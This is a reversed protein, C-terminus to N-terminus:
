NYKDLWGGNKKKQPYETVTKGKFKYEQEPYMMQKDGTDSIGLVPYPVGKMTIQNSNIKTIEGPHAWQGRDDEIVGGEEKRPVEKYGRLWNPKDSYAKIDSAPIESLTAGTEPNIVRHAYHRGKIQNGTVPNIQGRKYTPLSTEFIAGGEEPLYRLDAYGKQFSPFSTPRNMTKELLTAGEPSGQQVSRLVGTNQFDQLADLGTVRYSKNPNNLREAWPNIKYTKSLLGSEMSKGVKNAAGEVLGPVGGLMNNIFEKNSVENTWFKKSLPNVSGSGMMRGMFLPSAIAGVYPLNSNSERAEYPATGISGAAETIWNVPNIWDDYWTEDNENLRGKGEVSKGSVYAKERWDMQDLSKTEGTPLTFTKSKGENFAKAAKREAIRQQKEQEERRYAKGMDSTSSKIDKSKQGTTATTKKGKPTDRVISTSESAARPMDFRPLIFKGDQAIPILSGDRSISKPKWDLGHQYFTMGNEATTLNDVGDLKSIKNLMDEIEEDTYSLRLQQYPDMGTTSGASKEKENIELQKYKNFMDKSFPQTFPDYVGQDLMLKRLNNIRARTETPKNVYKMFGYLDHLAGKEKAREYKDSDKVRRAAYKRMLQADAGPIFNGSQDTIHSLEHTINNEWDPYITDTNFYMSSKGKDKGVAHTLTEAGTHPEISEEYYSINEPTIAARRGEDIKNYLEENGKVSEMLMKKYMPSNMWNKTFDMAEDYPEKYKSEEINIPVEKRDKIKKGKQASAKTKKAYPGNSPISGTRAYTFGVSGPISGGMAAQPTYNVPYINGGLQFQGGWAPSYNRGVNSYGEGMWNGSASSHGENANLEKGYKDLWGKM